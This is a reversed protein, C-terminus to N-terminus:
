ISILRILTLQLSIERHYHYRKDFSPLTHIIMSSTVSTVHPNYGSCPPSSVNSITSSLLLLPLRPEPHTVTTNDLLNLPPLVKYPRLLSLNTTDPPLGITHGYPVHTPHLGEVSFHLWDTAFSHTTGFIWKPPRMFNDAFLTTLIASDTATLLFLADQLRQPVAYPGSSPDPFTSEFLSSMHTTADFSTISSRWTTIMAIHVFPSHLGM